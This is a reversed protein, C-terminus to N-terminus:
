HLSVDIKTLPSEMDKVLDDINTPTNSGHAIVLPKGGGPHELFLVACYCYCHDYLLLLQVQTVSVDISCLFPRTYHYTHLEVCVM